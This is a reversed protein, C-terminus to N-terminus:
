PQSWPSLPLFRPPARPSLGVLPAWAYPLRVTERSVRRHESAPGPSPEAALAPGATLDDTDSADPANAAAHSASLGAQVARDVRARDSGAQVVLLLVLGSLWALGRM